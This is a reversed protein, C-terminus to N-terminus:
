GHTQGDAGSQAVRGCRWGGSVARLVAPKSAVLRGLFHDRGGAWKKLSEVLQVNARQRNSYAYLCFRHYFLKQYHAQLVLGGDQTGRCAPHDGGDALCKAAGNPGARGRGVAGGQDQPVPTAQLLLSVSDCAGARQRHVVVHESRRTHLGGTCWFMFDRRNPDRYVCRTQWLVDKRPCRTLTSM